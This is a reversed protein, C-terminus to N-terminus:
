DLEHIDRVVGIIHDVEAESSDRPKGLPDDIDDDGLLCRAVNAIGAGIAELNYGGEMVFVIKGDCLEDAMRILERTIHAFGDLTLKLGGLPDQWHADFGASVLILEPSFRKAAPWVIEEYLRAFGEDGTGARLPINITYGDGDGRGIEDAAGSGPYLPSQHSSIFLVSDDDYFIDNTGNGHHVDYDVIMVREVGHTEQAHRAAIAINNLLCFGMATDATAHHGPPRSAVLANNAEEDMVADVAMCAGGAAIRA